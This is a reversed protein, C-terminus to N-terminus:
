WVFLWVIGKYLGYFIWGLPGPRTPVELSLRITSLSVQNEILNIQGKLSEITNTVREVEKEVQLTEGVNAAKALLEQYRRHMREANKLRLTLDVFEATVDRGQVERREVKGLKTLRKLAEEFRAAPIRLTVSIRADSRDSDLTFGGMGKAMAIAKDFGDQPETTLIELEATKIVMRAQKKDAPKADAEPAEAEGGGEAATVAPANGAMAYRAPTQPAAKPPGAACAVLATSLLALALPRM